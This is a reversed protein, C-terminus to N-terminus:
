ETSLAHGVLQKKKRESEHRRGLRKTLIHFFYFHLIIWVLVQNICYFCYITKNLHCNLKNINLGVRSVRM